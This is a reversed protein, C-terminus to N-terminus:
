SKSSDEHQTKRRCVLVPVVAHHVIYDSVSGLITRRFKGLGRTGTIILTAREEHAISVIKEGPKGSATRFKGSMRKSLLKDRYKKELNDVREELEKLLQEVVAPSAMTFDYTEPVHILLLYDGTKYIHDYYWQFAHDSHESEDIAIAVVRQSGSEAM